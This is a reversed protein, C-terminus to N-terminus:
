LGRGRAVDADVGMLGTLLYRSKAPDLWFEAYEVPEARSWQCLTVALCPAGRRTRLLRANEASMATLEMREDIRTIVVGFEGALVDLFARTTLDMTLLRDFRPAPAWSSGRAIPEGDASFVRDFHVALRSVPGRGGAEWAAVVRRPARQRRLALVQVRPHKGAARIARYPSIFLLGPDAPARVIRTGSRRHRVLLGERALHGLAQRVTGRSVGFAASLEDEAPLTEGVRWAGQAVGQRILERIQVYLPIGSDRDLRM